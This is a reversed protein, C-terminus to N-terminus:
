AAAFACHQGHGQAHRALRRDRCLTGTSRVRGTFVGNAVAAAVRRLHHLLENGIHRHLPHRFRLLDALQHQEGAGVRARCSPPCPRRSRRRLSAIAGYRRATISPLPETPINEHRFRPARDVALFNVVSALSSVIVGAGARVPQSRRTETGRHHLKRASGIRGPGGYRTFILDHIGANAPMIKPV